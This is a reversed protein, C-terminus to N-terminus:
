FNKARKDIEKALNVDNETLGGSDHTTLWIKVTNYVNFWEPHHDAAEAAVAVSSMFGWAARFDGFRLERHLKGDADVSWDPLEKLSQQLADDTLKPTRMPLM